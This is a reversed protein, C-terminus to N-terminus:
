RFLFRRTLFYATAFLTSFVVFAIAVMAPIGLRYGITEWWDGQNSLFIALAIPSLGVLARGLDRWFGNPDM